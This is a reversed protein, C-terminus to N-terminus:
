LVEGWPIDGSAVLRLARAEKRELQLILEELGRLYHRIKQGVRPDETNELAAQFTAMTTRRYGLSRRVSALWEEADFPLGPLVTKFPKDMLAKFPYIATYDGDSTTVRDVMERVCADTEERVYALVAEDIQIFPTGVESEDARLVRTTKEGNVAQQYAVGIIQDPTHFVQGRTIMGRCQAGMSILRLAIGFCHSMLNAIGAPSVEVSIIVCDSIQTVVFDLSKDHYTSNPCTTPGVAAFKSADAATGLAAVLEMVRTLDDGATEAREVLASFALIDIFAVFKEKTQMGM